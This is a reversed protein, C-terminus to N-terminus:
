CSSRVLLQPTNETNPARLGFASTPELALQISDDNVVASYNSIFIIEERFAYRPDEEDLKFLILINLFALIDSQRATSLDEFEDRSHAGEGGHALIAETLTTARGDHLYPGTSGVGWLEKTIWVSERERKTCGVLIGREWYTTPPLPTDSLRGSKHSRLSPDRSQILM